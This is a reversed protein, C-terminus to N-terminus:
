KFYIIACKVRAMFAYIYSRYHLATRLYALEANLKRGHIWFNGCDAFIGLNPLYFMDLFWLHATIISHIIIFISMGFSYYLGHILSQDDGSSSTNEQIVLLLRNLFFPTAYFLVSLILSFLIQMIILSLNSFYIRWVLRRGRSEGFIYFM